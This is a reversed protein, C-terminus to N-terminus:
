FITNIIFIPELCLFEFINDLYHTQEFQFVILFIGFILHEKSTRNNIYVFTLTQESRVTRIDSLTIAIM